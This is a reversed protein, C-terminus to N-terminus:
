EQRAAREATLGQTQGGVESADKVLGEFACEENLLKWADESLLCNHSAVPETMSVRATLSDSQVEPGKASPQGQRRPYNMRQHGTSGGNYGGRPKGRVGVGDSKAPVNDPRAVGASRPEVEKRKTHKLASNAGQAEEFTRLLEAIEPAIIWKRGEQLTVYRRAEESLNSKLQDAVLLQVLAEFTSVERARLYFNLYSQLRTTFPRWGENIRKDSGLFRNLYEGPSLKLEDLVTERIVRYDKRQASSLRTSLYPIREAVLPFVLQGWFERPVEYAELTSEVSEFWVPAEAEAPFKPLVGSLIKSYRRLEGCSDRRGFEPVNRLSSQSMMQSLREMELQLEQLRRETTLDGFGQPREGERAGAGEPSAAGSEDGSNHSM